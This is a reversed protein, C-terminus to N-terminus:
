PVFLCFMHGQARSFRTAWFDEPIECFRHRKVGREEQQAEPCTAIATRLKDLYLGLALIPWEASGHSPCTLITFSVARLPPLRSVQSLPPAFDTGLTGHFCGSVTVFPLDAM